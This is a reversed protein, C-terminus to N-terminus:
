CILVSAYVAALGKSFVRFDGSSKFVAMDAVEANGEDESMGLKRANM